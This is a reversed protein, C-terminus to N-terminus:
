TSCCLLPKIRSRQFHKLLTKKGRERVRNRFNHLHKFAYQRVAPHKMLLITHFIIMPESWSKWKTESATVKNRCRPYTYGVQKRTTRYTVSPEHGRLSLQCSNNRMKKSTTRTTLINKFTPFPRQKKNLNSTTKKEEQRNVESENTSYTHWCPCFDTQSIISVHDPITADRFPKYNIFLIKPPLFLSTGWSSSSQLVLRLYVYEYTVTVPLTPM